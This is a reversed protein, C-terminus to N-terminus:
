LGMQIKFLLWFRDNDKIESLAKFVLQKQEITYKEGNNKMISAITGVIRRRLQYENLITKEKINKDLIELYIYNMMNFVNSEEELTFPSGTLDQNVTSAFSSAKIGLSKALDNLSSYRQGKYTPLCNVAM